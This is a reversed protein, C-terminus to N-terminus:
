IVTASMYLKQLKELLNGVIKQLEMKVNWKGLKVIKEYLFPFIFSECQFISHLSFDSLTESKYYM